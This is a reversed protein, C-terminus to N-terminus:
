IQRWSEPGYVYHPDNNITFERVELASYEGAAVTYLYKLALNSHVYKANLTTLLIKM